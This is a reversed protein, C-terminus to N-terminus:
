GPSEETTTHTPSRVGFFAGHTRMPHFKEVLSEALFVSEVCKLGQNRSVFVIKWPYNKADQIMGAAGSNILSPDQHPFYNAVCRSAEKMLM